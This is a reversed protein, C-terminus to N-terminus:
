ETIKKKFIREQLDIRDFIDEAIGIMTEVKGAVVYGETVLSKHFNKYVTRQLSKNFYILVNRCFILDMNKFPPDSIMNQRSFKIVSQIEPKITYTNDKNDIFYESKQHASLEKLANEEYKGQRAKNLAERDIDTAHILVSLEPYKRELVEKFMIALSYPEEGTACGCSWVRVVRSQVKKKREAILPIIKERVAKFTEPNRFFESVNITITELLKDYEDQDGQLVRLYEAFSKVRKDYMRVLIRRRMCRHRYERFDVGRNEYLSELIGHFAKLEEKSLENPVTFYCREPKNLHEDM